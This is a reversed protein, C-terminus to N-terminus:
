HCVDLGRPLAGALGLLGAQGMKAFISPDSEENRYAKIVRPALEAEAFSRAADRLMREDENLQDELRFADEWDFRGMDPADKATIKSSINM